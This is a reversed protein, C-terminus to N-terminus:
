RQRIAREDHFNHAFDANFYSTYVFTCASGSCMCASACVRVCGCSVRARTLMFVCACSVRVSTRCVSISVHVPFHVCESLVREHFVRARARARVCVCVCKRERERGTERLFCDETGSCLYGSGEHLFTEGRQGVGGTARRASLRPILEPFLDGEPHRGV